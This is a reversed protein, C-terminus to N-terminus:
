VAAKHPAPFAFAGCPNGDNTKGRDNEGVVAHVEQQTPQVTIRPRSMHRPAHTQRRTKQKHGGGGPRAMSLASQKAQWESLVSTLVLAAPRATDSNTSSSFNLPDIWELFRHVLQWESM